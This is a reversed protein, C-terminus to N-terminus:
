RETVTVSQNLRLFSYSRGGMHAKYNSICRVRYRTAYTLGTTFMLCYGTEQRQLKADIEEKQNDNLLREEKLILLVYLLSAFATSITSSDGESVGLVKCIPDFAISEM